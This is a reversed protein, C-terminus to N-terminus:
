AQPPGYKYAKEEKEMGFWTVICETTVVSFINHSFCENSIPIDITDWTGGEQVIALSCHPSAQPKGCFILDRCVQSGGRAIDQDDCFSWHLVSDKPM